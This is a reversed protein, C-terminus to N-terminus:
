RAGAATGSFRKHSTPRYSPRPALRTRCATWSWLPLSDLLPLRLPMLALAGLVCGSIDTDPGLLCGGTVQKTLTLCLGQGYAETLGLPPGCCRLRGQQLVAVCDSLAEAEDLHHTTLIITRGAALFAADSGAQCLCRPTPLAM